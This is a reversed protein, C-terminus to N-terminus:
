IEIKKRRYFFDSQNQLVKQKRKALVCHVFFVLISYYIDYIYLFLNFIHVFAIQFSFFNNESQEFTAGLNKEKKTLSNNKYFFHTM